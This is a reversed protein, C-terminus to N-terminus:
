EASTLTRGATVLTMALANVLTSKGVGPPGVLLVRRDTALVTDILAAPDAPLQPIQENTTATNM